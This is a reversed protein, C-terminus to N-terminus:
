HKDKRETSVRVDVSGGDKGVSGGVSAEHGGITGVGLRGDHTPDHNAAKDREAAQRASVERANAMNADFDKQAQSKEEAAAGVCLLVM